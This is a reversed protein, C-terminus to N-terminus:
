PTLMASAVQCLAAVGAFLAAIASLKSQQREAKERPTEVTKGAERDWTRMTARPLRMAASWFWFGAAAIAFVGSGISTITVLTAQTM